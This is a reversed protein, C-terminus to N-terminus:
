WNDFRQNPNNQNQFRQSQFMPNFPGSAEQNAAFNRGFDGRSTYMQNLPIQDMEDDRPRGRSFEDGRAGPQQGGQWVPPQGFAAMRPNDRFNTQQSFRAEEFSSSDLPKWKDGDERPQGSGPGSSSQEPEPNVPNMELDSGSLRRSRKSFPPPSWDSKKKKLNPGEDVEPKFNSMGEKLKKVKEPNTAELKKMYNILDTQEQKSLTNFSNLLSQLDEITLESLPESADKVGDDITVIQVEKKIEPQKQTKYSNFQGQSQKEMAAAQLFSTAYRGLSSGPDEKATMRLLEAVITELEEDTVHDQGAQVLCSALTEAILTQAEMEEAAEEQQTKTSAKMQDRNVTILSSIDDSRKKTAINLLRNLSTLCVRVAGQRSGELLGAVMQGSLKEKVMDLISVTDPDELLVSSAGERTQLCYNVILVM